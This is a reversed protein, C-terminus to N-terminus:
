LTDFLTDAIRLVAPGLLIIFITPFIFMVLPILMKVPAKMAQEEARQRRKRRFEKAEVKLVHSVGVGLQEAQIVANIFSTLDYLNIRDRLDTLAEKRNKGMSIESIVKKVEFALPGSGEEAVKKLSSEFALGAEVSVTLMDLFEPLSKQISKKRQNVKTTLWIRPVLIGLLIPIVAMIISTELVILFAVSSLSAIVIIVVYGAILESASFKYALGATVIERKVRDFAQNPLLKELSGTIKSILPLVVRRHIPLALARQLPTKVSSISSDGTSTNNSSNSGSNTNSRLDSHTNTWNFQDLEELRRKTTLKKHFIFKYLNWFMGTLCLILLLLILVTM